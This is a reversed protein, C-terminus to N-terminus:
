LANQCVVLMPSFSKATHDTRKDFWHLRLQGRRPPEGADVEPFSDIIKARWLSFIRYILLGTHSYYSALEDRVWDLDVVADLKRVLHDSPVLSDLRHEYFLLRHDTALWGMM